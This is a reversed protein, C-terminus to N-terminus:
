KFCLSLVERVVVPVLAGEREIENSKILWVIDSVSDIVVREWESKVSFFSSLLTVICSRSTFANSPLVSAPTNICADRRPM